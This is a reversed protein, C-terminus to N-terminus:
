NSIHATDFLLGKNEASQKCYYVIDHGHAYKVDMVTARYVLVPGLSFSEM